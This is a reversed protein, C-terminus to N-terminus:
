MNIAGVETLHERSIQQYNSIEIRIKEIRQQIETYNQQLEHIRNNMFSIKNNKN